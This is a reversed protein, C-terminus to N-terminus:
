RLGCLTREFLHVVRIGSVGSQMNGGASAAGSQGSTFMKLAQMAAARHYDAMVQSEQAMLFAYEGAWAKRMWPDRRVKVMRRLM